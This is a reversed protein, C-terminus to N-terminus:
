AAEGMYVYFAVPRDAFPNTFTVNLQLDGSGGSGDAAHISGKLVYYIGAVSIAQDPTPNFSYLLQPVATVWRAKYYDVPEWWWTVSAGPGLYLHGINTVDVQAM